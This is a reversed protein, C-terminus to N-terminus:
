EVRVTSARRARERANRAPLTARYKATQRYKANAISFRSKICAFYGEPFSEELDGLTSGMMSRTEQEGGVSFTARM